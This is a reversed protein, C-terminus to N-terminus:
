RRPPRAGEAEPTVRVQSPDFAHADLQNNFELRFDDSPGCRAGGCGARVVRLGGYTKFSFSQPAKTM